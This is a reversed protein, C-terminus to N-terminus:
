LGVDPRRRVRDDPRLRRRLRAPMCSAQRRSRDPHMRTWTNTCVDFTWTELSAHGDALAVLRGARRDFAMSTVGDGIVPRAQDVAGAQRPTSAPRAADFVQGVPPVVAPLKRELQSGVLLTGAVMAALLGALLLLAWARRPFAVGRWALAAALGRRRPEKAAVTRAFALADFETPGNAVHRVLAARLRSEFVDQETM